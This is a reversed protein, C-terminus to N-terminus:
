KIQLYMVCCLMILNYSQKTVHIGNSPFPFFFDKPLHINIHPGAAYEYVRPKTGDIFNTDITLVTSMDEPTLTVNRASVNINISVIKNERKITVQSVDAFTIIYSIRTIVNYCRLKSNKTVFQGYTIDKEYLNTQISLWDSDKVDLPNGYPSVYLKNNLGFLEELSSEIDNCINTGNQFHISKHYVYRCKIRKNLGFMMFNNETILSTCIGEKNSPQVLFRIHPSTVNFFNLSRNSEATTAILPRGYLYGPNGSVEIVKEISENTLIFRVNIEQNMFPVDLSINQSFLKITANIIKSDYYYFVYELKLALNTCSTETCSPEHLSKNYDM